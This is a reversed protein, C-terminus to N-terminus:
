IGMAVSMALTYAKLDTGNQQLSGNVNLTGNVTGGSLSVAGAISISNFSLVGIRTGNVIGSGSSLVISTGNSATYASPSRLVGDVFVQVTASNYNATFTTQGATTAVVETFIYAQQSSVSINKGSIIKIVDNLRRSEILTISSGNSATYDSANLSIGNAFVEVQGVIYGNTVTFVTQGALATFEQSNFGTIQAGGAFVNTAYLSGGVGVGGSVQLAGSSTSTAATTNTITFIGSFPSTTGGGGSAFSAGYTFEGTSTNYYLVSTSTSNTLGGVFIKRGVGLGGAIIMAGTTTSTSSTTNTISIINTTTAGRTTVSQLTATNWVVVAGTTQSVATDTGASISSVGATVFQNVTASTLIQAGFIYSSTGIYLAGGIGVGGAVQLAGSNTSSAATTGALTVNAASFNGSADRYVLTNITNSSTANSTVTFTSGETNATGSIGFGSTAGQAVYIGTTDTGLAVSDTVVTATLTVNTSGDFIVNGSLDGALSITRATLLKESTVAANVYMSGTNTFVPAGNTQAQLFQGTTGSNVFATVGPASQYHLQGQSGGAINIATTATGSVAGTFTGSFLIASITNASFNGSADRYVITNVTNSSTANSTVTFTSGETNATGSIGFGSTAGQAVYLGTTDTGLAVADTTVTATLTVNTSGDFSVNGSLDGALTITRATILKESNAASGVYMSGTNTFVPAGNTTAQLFQGTTGSNVFATVGPASQYHIQGQSGGAINTATTAIGSVSANITGAVNINGGVYLNRGVGLGGTIIAAGSTTSISNVNSSVTLTSNVTLGNKVRFDKDLAM